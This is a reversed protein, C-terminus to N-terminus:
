NKMESKGLKEFLNSYLAVVSSEGMFFAVIIELFTWQLTTKGLMNLTKPSKNYNGYAELLGYFVELTRPNIYSDWLSKAIL